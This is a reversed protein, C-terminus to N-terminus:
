LLIKEKLWTKEEALKKLEDGSTVLVTEYSYKFDPFFRDWHRALITKADFERIAKQAM